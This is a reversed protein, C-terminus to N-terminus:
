MFREYCRQVDDFFQQTGGAVHDSAIVAVSGGPRLARAAKEVRMTPDIWHWATAAVVADFPETPPPWEEFDAVVVTANSHNELNRRAVAALEARLEVATVAYGRRALPVTAKGTGCGVELVRAGPGLRAVETLDDFIREPYGPRARDYIEAVEGFTARLTARHDPSAM